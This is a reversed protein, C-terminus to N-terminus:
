NRVKLVPSMQLGVGTAQVSQVSAAPDFVLVITGGTTETVQFNLGPVKIGTQQGSPIRLPHAVNPAFTRAAGVRVEQNLTITANDPDFFLRVNGYTGVPLEGRAIQLGQATETPLALLNITAPATLNLSIWGGEGEENQGAPLVRVGTIQVNIASVASLPIQGLSLVEGDPAAIVAAPALSAAVSASRTLTVATTRGPGTGTDCAVLPLSLSLAVASCQMIRRLM